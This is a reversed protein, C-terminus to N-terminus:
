RNSGQDDPRTLVYFKRLTEAITWVTREGARLVVVSGPQLDIVEGSSFEVQGRGALVAFIEDVEVDKVVGETIEWIGCSVGHRAYLNALSVAPTGALIDTASLEAADLAASFADATLVRDTFESM